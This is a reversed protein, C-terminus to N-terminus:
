PRGRLAILARADGRSADRRHWRGGRAERAPGEEPPGSGRLRSQRADGGGRRGGSRLLDWGGRRGRDRARPRGVGEWGELDLYGAVASDSPNRSAAWLIDLNAVQPRTAPVPHNLHGLRIAEEGDRVDDRADVTAGLRHERGSGQRRPAARAKAERRPPHIGFRPM